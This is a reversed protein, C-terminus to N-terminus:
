LNHANVVLVDVLRFELDNLVGLVVRRDVKRGSFLCGFFVGGGDLCVTAAVHVVINRESLFRSAAPMSCGPRNEKKFAAFLSYSRADARALSCKRSRSTIM